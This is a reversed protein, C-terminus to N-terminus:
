ERLVGYKSPHEFELWAWMANTLPSVLYMTSPNLDKKRLADKSVGEIQSMRFIFLHNEREGGM